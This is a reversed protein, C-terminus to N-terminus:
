REVEEKAIARAMAVVEEAFDGEGKPHAALFDRLANELTRDEPKTPEIDAAVAREPIASLSANSAVRQWGWEGPHEVQLTAIEELTPQWDGVPEIIVRANLPGGYELPIDQLETEADEFSSASIRHYRYIDADGSADHLLVDSVAHRCDYADDMEDVVGVFNGCEFGAEGSDQNMPCGVYQMTVSHEGGPALLEQRKHFHHLVTHIHREKLFEAGDQTLVCDNEGDGSEAWVRDRFLGLEFAVHGVAVTPEGERSQDIISTLAKEDYRQGYKWPLFMVSVGTINWVAPEWVIAARERGIASVLLHLVSESERGRLFDHQGGPVIIVNNDSHKNLWDRIPSAVAAILTQAPYAHRDWGHPGHFTDGNLVVTGNDMLEVISRLNRARFEIDQGRMHIDGIISIM